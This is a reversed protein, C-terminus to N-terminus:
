SGDNDGGLAVALEDVAEAVEKDIVEGHTFQSMQRLVTLKDGGPIIINQQGTHELEPTERTIEIGNTPEHREVRIEGDANIM